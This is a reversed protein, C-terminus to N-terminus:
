LDCILWTIWNSRKCCHAFGFFIIVRGEYPKCESKLVHTCCSLCNLLLLFYYTQYAIYFIFISLRSWSCIRYPFPLQKLCFSWPLDWPYVQALATVPLCIPFSNYYDLCAIIATAWIVATATSTIPLSYTRTTRYLSWPPPFGFTSKLVNLYRNTM